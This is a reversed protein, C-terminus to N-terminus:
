HEKAPSVQDLRRQIRLRDVADAPALELYRSFERAADANRSQEQYLMGLGRHAAPLSPQQAIAERYLREAAARNAKLMEAGGPKSLLEAQEEQPTMRRFHGGDSTLERRAPESSKAGLARFADALLVRYEPRQPKWMVLRNARSLATRPRRSEIGAGISYCVADVVHSLYDDEAGTDPAHSPMPAALKRLEKVRQDIKDHDQYLTSLPEVELREDLRQFARAASQPDYGAAATLALGNRDAESEMKEGYGGRYIWQGVAGNLLITPVTVLPAAALSVASAIIARKRVERHHLYQHRVAVHAIERGLISALQAETRLAALMGTSLYISGNPFGFAQVTPDRLVRVHYEVNEPAPGSGLLRQAIAQLYAALEHDPYVFGGEELHRDLANVEGLLRLDVSKFQFDRPNGHASTLLLCNLVAAGLPFSKLIM